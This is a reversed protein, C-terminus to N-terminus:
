SLSPLHPRWEKTNNSLATSSFSAYKMYLVDKDNNIPQEYPEPAFLTDKVILLQEWIDMM